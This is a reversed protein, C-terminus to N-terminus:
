CFWLLNKCSIMAALAGQQLCNAGTSYGYFLPWCLSTSSAVAMLQQVVCCSTRSEVMELHEVARSACSFQKTATWVAVQHLRISHPVTKIKFCM